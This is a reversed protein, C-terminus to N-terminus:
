KNNQEKEIKWILGRDAKYGRYNGTKQRSVARIKLAKVLLPEIKIAKDADVLAKPYDRVHQWLQAREVLANVDQPNEELTQNLSKLKDRRDIWLSETYDAQYGEIDGMAKKAKARLELLSSSPKSEIAKNLDGITGTYDDIRMKETAIMELISEKSYESKKSPNTELESLDQYLKQIYEMIKKRHAKKAEQKDAKAGETDGIEEKFRAREIYAEESPYQEIALTYDAMAGEIDGIERKALARFKYIFTNKLEGVLELYKDYDQIAGVYDEKQFKYRARELYLGDNKPKALIAADIIELQYDGKEREQKALLFDQEAGKLDGKAKKAEGRSEYAPVYRPNIEIIKSFDDIADDFKEQEMRALGRFLYALSFDPALSIAKTFYEISKDISGIGVEYEGKRFWEEATEGLAISSMFMLILLMVNQYVKLVPM